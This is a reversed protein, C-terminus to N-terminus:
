MLLQIYKSLNYMSRNNSNKLSPIRFIGPLLYLGLPYLLSIGFSILTDKILHIQTNKYVACFCSLYFWFFFLYLFSIAYFLIFRIKLNKVLENMKLTINKSYDLRKFELIRKESLSLYKIIVNVVFSILTSYIIKPLQYIFDYEGKELYITHFISDTYFLANITYYLSFTFLFICFKIVMSNYDNSPLIAFLLLHKTRLLSKYYQFFSRKDLKLAIEYELINLESDNYEMIKNTKKKAQSNQTTINNIKSLNNILSNEILTIRSSKNSSKNKNFKISNKNIKKPPFNKKTKKIKINKKNKNKYKKPIKRNKFINIKKIDNYLIYYGKLYFYISCIIYIFIIILLIFFGINTIIGDKEFLVKYCKM